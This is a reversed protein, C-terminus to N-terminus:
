GDFAIAVTIVAGFLPPLVHAALANEFPDAPAEPSAESGAEVAIGVPDHIIKEFHQGPHPDLRDTFVLRAVRLSPEGFVPSDLRGRLAM